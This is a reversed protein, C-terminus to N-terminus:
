GRLKKNEMVTEIDKVDTLGTDSKLYDVFTM